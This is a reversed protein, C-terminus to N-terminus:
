LAFPTAQIKLIEVRGDMEKDHVSPFVPLGWTETGSYSEPPIISYHLGQEQLYRLFLDYTDPNRITSSVLAYPYSDRGTRVLLAQLANVLHPVLSPDYVVDAAVVCDPNVGNLFSITFAEQSTM